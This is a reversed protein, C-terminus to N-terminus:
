VIGFARRHTELLVRPLPKTLMDALMDKTSVHLVTIKDRKVCERIFHFRADIHKTRTHHEPNKALAEAGANNVHLPISKSPLLKLERLLHCIWLGEKCSDSMSKYEAETSSLSVTAQTVEM